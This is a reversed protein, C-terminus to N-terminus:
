LDSGNEGFLRDFEKPHPTIITFPYLSSLLEPSESIINLADADLVLPRPFSKLFHHLMYATEDHIGIGPGIGAAQYVDIKAPSSTLHFQDEDIHVMAEPVSVQM